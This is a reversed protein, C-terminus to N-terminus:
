RKFVSQGRAFTEMIAIDKITDPNSLL